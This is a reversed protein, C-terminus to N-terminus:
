ADSRKFRKLISRKNNQENENGWNKPQIKVIIKNNEDREVKLKFDM